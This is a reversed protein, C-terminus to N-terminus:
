GSATCLEAGDCVAEVDAIQGDVVSFRAAAFFEDGTALELVYLVAAEEGDISAQVDRVGVIGNDATLLARVDDGSSAVARRNVTQTADGAIPVGSADHSVVAAFWADLADSVCLRDCSSPPRLADDGRDGSSVPVPGLPGHNSETLRAEQGAPNTPVSEPGRAYGPVDIHFNAEIETILGDDDVRFREVIYTPSTITDLLYVAVVDTGDAYWRLDRIGTIVYMIPSSLGARINEAGDGSQSGNEIRWADPHLPVASGDHSVLAALYTNAADIRCERDCGAASAAPAVAVSAACLGAVAAAVLLTRDTRM